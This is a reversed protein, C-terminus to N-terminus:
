CPLNERGYIRYFGEGERRHVMLLTNPHICAQSWPHSIYNRLLGTSFKAMGPRDSVDEFFITYEDFTVSGNGFDIGVRSNHCHVMALMFDFECSSEGSLDEMGYIRYFKEGARRYVQFLSGARFPPSYEFFNVRHRLIACSFQVTGPIGVDDSLIISYFDFFRAKDPDGADVDSWEYRHVTALHVTAPMFDFECSCGGSLDEMGLDPRFEAKVFKALGVSALVGGLVKFFARRNM